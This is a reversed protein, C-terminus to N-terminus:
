VAGARENANMCVRKRERKFSCAPTPWLLDAQMGTCSASSREIHHRSSGSHNCRATGCFSGVYRAEKREQTRTRVQSRECRHATHRAGDAGEGQSESDGHGEGKERERKEERM